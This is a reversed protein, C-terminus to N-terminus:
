CAEFEAADAGEDQASLRTADCAAVCVADGDYPLTKAPMAYPGVDNFFGGADLAAQRDLCPLDPLGAGGNALAAADLTAVPQKALLFRTGSVAVDSAGASARVAAGALLDFDCDDVTVRSGAAVRIAADEDTAAESPLVRSDTDRRGTTDAVGFGRFTVDSAGDVVLPSRAVPLVVKDQWTMGYFVQKAHTALSYTPWVFLTELAAEYYWEEESLARLDQVYFRLESGPDDEVLDVLARFAAREDADCDRGSGCRLAFTAVRRIAQGDVKPDWNGESTTMQSEILTLNARLIATQSGAAATVGQVHCEAFFGDVLMGVPLSVSPDGEFYFSGDRAVLEVTTVHALAAGVREVRDAYIWTEDPFRAASAYDGAVRLM